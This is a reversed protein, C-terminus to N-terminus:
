RGLIGGVSDAMKVHLVLLLGTKKKSSDSVYTVCTDFTLIFNDLRPLIKICTCFLLVTIPAFTVFKVFGTLSLISAMEYVLLILTKFSVHKANETMMSIVLHANRKTCVYRHISSIWVVAPSEGFSVM